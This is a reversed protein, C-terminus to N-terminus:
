CFFKDAHIFKVGARSACTKDETKDGVMICESPLLLHNCIHTVLMGTAPKRCYCFCKPPSAHPCFLYEIDLGLLENTKDFCAKATAIPLGKGCASQTSAGLLKYGKDLYQRLVKARNPLLKVESPDTPWHESGTSERLTGDYDLILAKNKYKSDWRRVFKREEIVAFGEAKSPEQFEKKYKFLPAPPFLNPDKCGKFEEPGMIHGVRQMMRMCANFQADEFSTTLWVCRIQAGGQKAAAIISKRSEVSPYTNDLVVLNQGANLANMAHQAQQEITGGMLDRNIRHYGQHIFEEVLTTKGAALYGMVIAIEKM